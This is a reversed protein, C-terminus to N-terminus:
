FMYLWPKTVIDLAETYASANVRFGALFPLIDHCAKPDDHGIYVQYVDSPETFVEHLYWRNIQGIQLLQGHGFYREM